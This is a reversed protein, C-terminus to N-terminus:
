RWIKLIKRQHPSVNRVARPVLAAFQPHRLLLPIISMRLRADAQASLNALLTTPHNALYGGSVRANSVLFPVDLRALAAALTDPSPKRTIPKRKIM